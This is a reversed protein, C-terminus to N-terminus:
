QNGPRLRIKWGSQFRSALSCGDIHAKYHCWLDDLAQSEDSGTGEFAEQCTCRDEIHVGDQQRTLYRVRLAHVIDRQMRYPVPRSPIGLKKFLQGLPSELRLDRWIPQWRPTEEAANVEESITSSIMQVDMCASRLPRTEEAFNTGLSVPAHEEEPPLAKAAKMLPSLDDQAALYDAYGQLKNVVASIMLRSLATEDRLLAQQLRQLFADQSVVEVENMAVSLTLEVKIKKQRLPTAM